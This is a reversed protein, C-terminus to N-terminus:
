IIMCQSISFCGPSILGVFFELNRLKWDDTENKLILGHM